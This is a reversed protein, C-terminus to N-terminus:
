LRLVMVEKFTPSGWIAGSLNYSIRWDNRKLSDPVESSM